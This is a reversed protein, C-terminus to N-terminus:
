KYIKRQSGDSYIEIAVGRYDREVEQGLINVIKVVKKALLTNDISIINSRTSKGDFDVQVLRYYNVENRYYADNLTYRLVGESNGAGNIQGIEIFDTGNTSKELIFYDNNKESVTTWSIVNEFGNNYGSLGELEIPLPSAGVFYPYISSHHCSSPVSYTTCFVYQTGVTLGTASLNFINGSAVTGGCAATSINWTLGVVNGGSCNSSIIMDFSVTSNVPTFTYCYTQADGGDSIPTLIYEPCTAVVTAVSPNTPYGCGATCPNTCSCPPPVNGVRICFDSLTLNCTADYSNGIQLLYTNGVVLGSPNFVISGDYTVMSECSIVLGSGPICTSSNYLAASMQSGCYTSGTTAQVELEIFMTTATAVFRYWVSQNIFWSNCTNTYTNEGAQVTSATNLSQSCLPAANSTLTTANACNNNAQGITNGVSIFLVFLFLISKKM